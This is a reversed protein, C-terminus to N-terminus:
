FLICVLLTRWVEDLDFQCHSCESWTKFTHDAVRACCIFLSIFVFANISNKFINHNLEYELATFHFMNMLHLQNKKTKIKLCVAADSCIYIDDGMWVFM